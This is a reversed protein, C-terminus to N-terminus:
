ETDNPAKNPILREFAPLRKKIVGNTRQFFEAMFAHTQEVAWLAFDSSVCRQTIFDATPGVVPSCKRRPLDAEIDRRRPNPGDSWEPRHHVFANRLHILGVVDQFPRKGSEFRQFSQNELFANYRKPIGKQEDLKTVLDDSLQADDFAENLYAELSATCSMICASFHWRIEDFFPGFENGENSKEIEHVRRYFYGAALMHQYGMDYRQIITGSVRAAPAVLKASGVVPLPKDRKSSM